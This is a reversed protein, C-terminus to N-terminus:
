DFDPYKMGIQRRVEDLITMIMESDALTCAEAELQGPFSFLYMINVFGSM